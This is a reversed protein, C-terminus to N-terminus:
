LPPKHLNDIQLIFVCAVFCIFMLCICCIMRFNDPISKYNNTINCPPKFFQQKQKMKVVPALPSKMTAPNEYRRRKYVLHDDKLFSM